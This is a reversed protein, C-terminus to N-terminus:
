MNASHTNNEPINVNRKISKRNTVIKIKFNTKNSLYIEENDFIVFNFSSQYSDLKIPFETSLIRETIPIDTEEFKPFYKEGIWKRSLYCTHEVNNDDILIVRNISVPKSSMNNFCFCCVYRNTGNHHELNILQFNLKFRGKVKIELFQYMSLAFASISILYLIFTQNDTLFKLFM